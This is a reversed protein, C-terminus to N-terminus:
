RIFTFDKRHNRDRQLFAGAQGYTRRVFELANPLPDLQEPLDRLGQFIKELPLGVRHGDIELTASISVEYDQQAFTSQVTTRAGFAVRM